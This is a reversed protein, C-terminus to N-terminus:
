DLQRWGNRETGINLIGYMILISIVPMLATFASMTLSTNIIGIGIGNAVFLWFGWRKWLWLAVASLVIMLNAIGFIPRLKPPIEPNSIAILNGAFFYLGAGLLGIIMLLILYVALCGHRKKEM